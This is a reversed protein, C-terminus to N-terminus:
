TSLVVVRFYRRSTTMITNYGAHILTPCDFGISSRLKQKIGMVRFSWSLDTGSKDRVRARMGVCMCVCVLM